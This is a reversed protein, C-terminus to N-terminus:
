NGRIGLIDLSLLVRCAWKYLWNPNLPQSGIYPLNFNIVTDLTIWGSYKLSSWCKITTKSSQSDIHNIRMSLQLRVRIPQLYNTRDIHNLIAIMGVPPSVRPSVMHKWVPILHIHYVPQSILYKWTYVHVYLSINIDHLQHINNTDTTM